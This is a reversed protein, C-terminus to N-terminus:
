LLLTVISHQSVLFIYNGSLLLNSLLPLHISLSLRKGVLWSTSLSEISCTEVWLLWSSALEVLLVKLLKLLWLLELLLGWSKRGLLKSLLRILLKRLTLLKRSRLELLWLLTELGLLWSKGLGGM